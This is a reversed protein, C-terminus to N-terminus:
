NLREIFMIKLNRNDIHVLFTNSDITVVYIPENIVSSLLSAYMSLEKKTPKQLNIKTSNEVIHLWLKNANSVTQLIKGKEMTYSGDPQMIHFNAELGEITSDEKASIIFSWLRPGCIFSKDFLLAIDKQAFAKKIAAAAKINISDPAKVLKYNQAHLNHMAVLLTIHIIFAKQIIRRLM